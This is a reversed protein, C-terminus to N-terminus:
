SATENQWLIGSGSVQGSMISKNVVSWSESDTNCLDSKFLVLNSTREILLITFYKEKIVNNFDAVIGSGQLGGDGITRLVGMQWTLDTTTAALELPISIDVCRIKKRPTASAWSFSTVRGFLKGNIYCLVKAGSVLIPRHSM